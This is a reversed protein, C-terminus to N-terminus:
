IKLLSTYLDHLRKEMKEWSFSSEYAQRGNRGLKLRLEADNALRELAAELENVDGYSVVLGCQFNEVMLDMNTGGVVIIPKELMMAEFVKNASAHRYNPVAPDCTSFLVDASRSLVITKEYPIRGYWSVNPLELAQAVIAPEDGGFGACLFPYYLETLNL